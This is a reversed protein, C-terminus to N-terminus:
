PYQKWRFVEGCHEYSRWESRHAKNIAAILPAYCRWLDPHTIYLTIVGLVDFSVTLPRRERCQVNFDDMFKIYAIPGQIDERYELMEKETLPSNVSSETNEAQTGTAVLATAMMGRLLERRNM